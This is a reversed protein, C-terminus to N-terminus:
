EILSASMSLSPPSSLSKVSCRTTAVAV